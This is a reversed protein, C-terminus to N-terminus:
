SNLFFLALWGLIKCAFLCFLFAELWQGFLYGCDDGTIAFLARFFVIFGLLVV